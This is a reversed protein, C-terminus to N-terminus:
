EVEKIHTLGMEIILTIHDDNLSYYIHKGVKKTKVLRNKRLVKLQHSVNSQEMELVDCIDCGCVEEQALLMLINMRTKDGFVKFFTVLDIITDSDKLHKKLNAIKTSSTMKEM